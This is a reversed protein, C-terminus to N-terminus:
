IGWDWPWIFGKTWLYASYGLIPLSIGARLWWPLGFWLDFMKGGSQKKRALSRHLFRCGVKLGRRSGPPTAAILGRDRERGPTKSQGGMGRGWLPRLSQQSGEPTANQNRAKMEPPIAASLWRSIATVGGPDFSIDNSAIEVDGSETPPRECPWGRRRGV